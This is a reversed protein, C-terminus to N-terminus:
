PTANVIKNVKIKIREGEAVHAGEAISQYTVANNPLSPDNDYEINPDLTLKSEDIMGPVKSFDVGVLHPVTTMKVAPGSSVVLDVASGAAAENNAEPSQSIVKGKDVTDSNAEIVNGKTLNNEQLKAIADDLTINKVDPVTIKQLGASLRVYVISGKKVMMGVDPSTYIVTGEPQDSNQTDRVEMTCGVNKVMDRATAEDQGIINPVAVENRGGNYAIYTFLAAAAIVVVVLVSTIILWKNTRKRNGKKRGRPVNNLDSDKISPMVRTVDNPNEYKMYVHSDPDASARDLDSIMAAASEYRSSSNKELAKLIIDELAIPIDPNLESPKVVEEQIHKLAVVVPSEGQFPVRGTAMEYMVTGLSYIDAKGDTYGGRAQEPSIYYASGLVSGTNTLTSSNSVRAIGFDTVKAIGDQTILINQPKVDRHVINNNHAHELAQCIQRSINIVDMYSMPAKEKIVQKLTKGKVFEMVIYYIGDEVGVDYINVINPHSLSASSLSEKKFKNIFEEDETLEPKLIKVAVFRNLLHDKAKYVLGMGGEGVKEILEYRKGLVKGIM